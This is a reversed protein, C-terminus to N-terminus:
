GTSSSRLRPRCGRPSPGLVTTGTRRSASRRSASPARASASCTVRDSAMRAAMRAHSPAAYHCNVRRGELVPDIRLANEGGRGLRRVDGLEVIVIRCPLEPKAEIFGSTEQFENDQLEVVPVLEHDVGHLCTRLVVVQQWLLRIKPERKSTEYDRLLRVGVKPPFAQKIWYCHRDRKM